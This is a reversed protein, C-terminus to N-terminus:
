KGFYFFFVKKNQNLKFPKLGKKEQKRQGKARTCFCSFLLPLLQAEPFPLPLLL